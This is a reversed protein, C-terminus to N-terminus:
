NIRSHHMWLMLGRPDIWFPHSDRTVDPLQCLTIYEVPDDYKSDKYMIYWDNILDNIEDIGMDDRFYVIILCIDKFEKFTAKMKM